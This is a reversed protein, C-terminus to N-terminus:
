IFDTPTECKPIIAILTTNWEKPMVKTFFVDSVFKWLSDGVIDWQSQFFHPVMGDSESAKLPCLGFLVAKVDEKSILMILAIKEDYSLTPLMGRPLIALLIAEDQIYM